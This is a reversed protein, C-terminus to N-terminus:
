KAARNFAAWAPQHVRAPDNAYRHLADFSRWYQVLVPMRPSKFLFESHLFGSDPDAALERLMAPMARLVPMWTGIALVRNIRMGIIFVVIEGRHDATVRGRVIASM